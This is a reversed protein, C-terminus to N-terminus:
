VAAPLRAWSMVTCYVLATRHSRHRPRYWLGAPRVPQSFNNLYGRRGGLPTWKVAAGGAVPRQDARCGTSQRGAEGCNEATEGINANLPLVIFLLVFGALFYPLGCWHVCFVVCCNTTWYFTFTKHSNPRSSVNSQDSIPPLEMARTGGRGPSSYLRAGNLRGTWVDCQLQGGLCIFLKPEKRPVRFQWSM